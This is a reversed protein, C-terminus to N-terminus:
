AGVGSAPSFSIVIGKRCGPPRSLEAIGSRGKGVRTQGAWASPRFGAQQRASAKRRCREGKAFLKLLVARSQPLTNILLHNRGHFAKVATAGPTGLVWRRLFASPLHGGGIRVIGGTDESRRPEVWRM